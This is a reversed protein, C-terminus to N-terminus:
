RLRRRAGQRLITPSRAAAPAPLFFAADFLHPQTLAFDLYAEGLASMWELLHRARIGAVIKEWAAIGDEMLADLRADPTHGQCDGNPHTRRNLM